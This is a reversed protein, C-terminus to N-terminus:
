TLKGGLDLKVSTEWQDPREKHDHWGQEIGDSFGLFFGLWMTRKRQRIEEESKGLSRAWKEEEVAIWHKEFLERLQSELIEGYEGKGVIM